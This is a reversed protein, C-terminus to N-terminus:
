PSDRKTSRLWDALEHRKEPERKPNFTIGLSELARRHANEVRILDLTDGPEGRLRKARLESAIVSLEAARKIAALALPSFQVDGMAAKLQAEQKRILVAQRSRGNYRARESRLRGKV